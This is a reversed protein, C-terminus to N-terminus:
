PNGRSALLRKVEAALNGRDFDAKDIFADAGVEALQRRKDQDKESSVVIVPLGRYRADRRLNEVLTLGDMRPMNLDSVVLHFTHDKLMELAEIGDVATEVNYGEFELISKEIERTSFSDDVVLIRQYEPSGQSYRKKAEFASSRRFRNILEPVSLIPIMRFDEDYVFGQFAQIAALSPPLPKYVLSVFHLVEDVAIAAVEGLIDVVLAHHRDQPPRRPDVLDALNHVPVLLDRLVISPRGVVQVRDQARITQVERIHQSPVLFRREGVAVFFGSVTALSLPLSLVFETGEGPVSRLSLKGKVGEVQHRVIDLGLGRGSLSSVADTTTFGPEFLFQQLSAPEMAAIEDARDPRFAQAKARIKEFDLGRGDDGIRLVFTGSDATCQIRVIGEPSKGAAAREAPTELGHDLANRVLHIVPDRLADLIARDLGLEGGTVELRAAKGLSSATEEVMVPLPGLILDVPLMLLGLMQNQVKLAARELLGFHESFGKRIESVRALVGAQGGQDRLDEELRALAENDKKLQFQRIILDNHLRLLEEIRETKVRVSGPTAEPEPASPADPSAEPRRHWELSFPENAYAKDYAEELAGYDVGDDGTKAVQDLATRMLDCAALVLHVHPAGITYRGEKVGKFVTELGHAMAELSPFKLMRSSGKLTHLERLLVTLDEPSGPDNKLVLIRAEIATLNESAEELFHNIFAKRDLAM